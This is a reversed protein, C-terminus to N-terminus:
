PLAIKGASAMSKVTDQDFKFRFRIFVGKATYHNATFDQDYFGSFNYGLSLWMNTGVDWGTEIGYSRSIVGSSYSHMRNVMFGVDWKSRIDYRLEGGMLDTYGKYSGSDFAFRAYKAGYYLSLQYRDNVTYNGQLNNVIKWNRTDLGYTAVTQPNNALTSASEQSAATGTSSAFQPLSQLGQQDAYILDMQELWSWRSEDPRYAYGLRGDINDSTGSGQFDSHFAQLSASFAQGQSLTRYFGAFLNRTSQQDSNLTEFRGNMAWSQQHYSAGVFLANFDSTLTGVAPATSQSTTGAAPFNPEHMSAVRNYGAQLSLDKSVEWGQTLGMTSFLRPGYETGEEGISSEVQGHSWPESKVGISTSHDSQQAGSAFQEDVSLTTKQTVKYDAGVTALNPYQPDEAAGSVSQMVNGHLILSRDFLGYSGNVYAQNTSYNGQATGGLVTPTLNSFSDEAHQLGAGLTDSNNFKYQLGSSAVDSTTDLALSQQRIFDGTISWNQDLHYRTDDGMRRMGSDGLSQQGLGFTTDEDKLYIDNELTLSQTKLDVSFANGSANSTNSGGSTVSVGNVNSVTSAAGNSGNNTHAVEAKLTTSPTVQVRLDVGTLKNNGDGTGEDVGTMGVEVKGDTSKLSVRGGGTISNTVGTTVEYEVVIYEPDFNDDRPPVPQKFFISGGFYDITYDVFASLQQTSLVANTYRDRTEISVRESNILLQQHSLRYLGSTGNGQIEDKVYAQDNQAAFATYGFNDGQYASKVGTFLRDYRSLETVTLGTSFDGFMAYFQDREIKIYLKSSSSADFGQESADGYLMFYTNPNVAQQLGNSVTGGAKASDYSTTLLFDGKITGKAYFAVRSDQYIDSNPDDGQLSQMNNKIKDFATTGSAVGVLIWDRAAPRMWGRLQEYTDQQLPVTVTVVGTSTTPALKIYAIGNEGIVFTPERPALASLQDQQLQDVSQYSQFPTNIQYHGLLGRRAPYGWRDFFRVAFVPKVRGDALLKSKDAMFEVRVPAGAYHIHRELSQVVTDGEKVVAVLTNDGEKLPVGIWESVAATQKTNKQQSLFNSSSVQEGNVTLSVKQTVGHEVAVHIAPIAPLYDQTPWILQPKGDAQTELWKPDVEFKDALKDEDPAADDAVDAANQQQAEPQDAPSLGTIAAHQVDSQSGAVTTAPLVEDYAVRVVTRRGAETDADNSGRGVIFVQAGDIDVHARAYDAAAQARAISLEMNNAYKSGAAMQQSDAYGVFTLSVNASGKILGAIQQMVDQDHVSLSTSGPAFDQLSFEQAKAQPDPLAHLVVAAAPTHQGKATPSDFNALARTQFVTNNVSKAADESKADYEADIETRRNKARGAESYNAALPENSGRGTIFVQASDVDIHAQVFDAVAQARAISLEMNNTYKSGPALQVDDTYGIFTMSIGTSAKILDAIKQMVDRDHANMEVKGSPFGEIIFSKKQRNAQASAAQVAPLLSDFELVGKWGAEHAGLRFILMGDGADHPDDVKVGDVRTTGTMYTMGAPLLVTTSLNSVAVDLVALQVTNHVHDAAPAQTLQLSLDGKAGPIPRVHFDARWLAGGHVEVFQSYDRGAWRTNQECSMPEYGKPLSPLDLQVVHTGNTIAQFHYDGHKDTVAYSGDEMIVRAKEVGQTGQSDCGVVVRGILTNVNQLFESQVRVEATALNSVQLGNEFAQADNVVTTLPTAATIEVAYTLTVLASPAVSGANFTLQQGTASIVLDTLATSGLRASGKMYRFGQPMLDLISVGKAALTTSTNQLNLSFQIIDGVAATPASVTKQLLLKTSVPDVPVDLQLIGTKSHALSGGFSASPLTYPAGTLTQLNAASAVSPAHYGPPTTVRLRYNGTKVYPFLFGGAPVDYKAGSSDTVSTGSTITSPYTSVGDKGLVPVPKGTTADVLTLKAGDLRKGSTSDFVVNYPDVLATAASKDSSDQADTYNVQVLTNAGAQLSCGSVAAASTPVYGVFVGTNVGTETLKLTVSEHLSPVSVTVIVTDRNAPDMNQDHDTLQIFLTNGQNYISTPALALPNAVNLTGGPGAPNPLPNFTAGGDTSCLSPGALLSSAVSLGPAYDMFIVSSPTRNAAVVTLDVRNTQQTKTSGDPAQYSLSAINSIVTGPLTGAAATGM